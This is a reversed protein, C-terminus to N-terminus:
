IEFILGAYQKRSNRSLNMIEQHSWHYVSAIAHIEKALRPGEQMLRTLFFPQMDFRVEQTHDCEPCNAKMDMSLLPALEAMKQQIKERDIKPDGEILCRELLKTEADQASLNEVFIEDEGNPLRFQINPEIKYIGDNPLTEATPQYHELLQDLNFDLDFKQECSKCKVTSEIKSGYIHLYLHAVIRDRDATVIQSAQVEKGSPSNQILSDLLRLLSNTDTNKIDMEDATKLSRLHIAPTNPTWRLPIFLAESKHM